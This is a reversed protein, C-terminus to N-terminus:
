GPAPLRQTLIERLQHGLEPSIAFSLPAGGVVFDMFVMEPQVLVGVREAVMVSRSQDGATKDAHVQKVQLLLGIVEQLQEAPFSLRSTTGDQNEFEVLCTSFDASLGFRSLKKAAITETM